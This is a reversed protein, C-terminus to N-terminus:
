NPRENTPWLDGQANSRQKGRIHIIYLVGQLLGCSCFHNCNLSLYIILSPIITNYSYQIYLATCCVETHTRPCVPSVMIILLLCSRSGLVDDKSCSKQKLHGSFSTNSLKFHIDTGKRKGHTTCHEQAQSAQDQVYEESM